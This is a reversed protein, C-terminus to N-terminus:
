KDSYMKSDRTYILYIYVRQLDGETTIDNKIDYKKMKDQLNLITMKFLLLKLIKIDM